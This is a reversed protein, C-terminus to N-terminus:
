ASFIKPPWFVDSYEPLTTVKEIIHDELRFLFISDSKLGKGKVDDDDTFYVCNGKGGLFDTSSISFSCDVGLVFARDGLSKVDVWTGWEEDLKHIRFAIAKPSCMRYRRRRFSFSLRRVDLNEYDNWTRRDGDLYRDVVYLDGCSEVLNKQSGCGFLPPSYQILKLSSDIWSVTGWRDVVYFQGKYEIIDDYQFNKDDLLTWSEDGYKWYGLKGEHYIALISLEHESYRASSPFLLVKNIGFLYFGSLSKLMFAKSLVFFRFDLLNLMIPSYRVQSNSLPHFFKLKGLKTEGIKTLWAKPKSESSSSNKSQRSFEMRCITAQSLVADVGIPMPLKLILPPIDEDFSPFPVSSRWSTCVSRFRLVDVRFDLCKSITELLEKPLDTWRSM